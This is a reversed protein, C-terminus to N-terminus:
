VGGGGSSIFSSIKGTVFGMHEKIGAAADQGIGILIAGVIARMYFGDAIGFLYYLSYGPILLCLIGQMMNETLAKTVIAFNIVLAAIWAYKVSYDLYQQPLVHGYRLYGMGAGLVLFLLGALIAHNVGRSAKAEPRLELSDDDIANAGKIIADLGSSEDEKNDDAVAPKSDKRLRLKSRTLPPPPPQSGSLAVQELAGPKELFDGCNACKLHAEDVFESVVTIKDCKPCKLSLDAM